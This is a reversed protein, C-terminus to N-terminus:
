KSLLTWRQTFASDIFLEACLDLWKGLRDLHDVRSSSLPGLLASVLKECLGLASLFIDSCSCCVQFCIILNVHM